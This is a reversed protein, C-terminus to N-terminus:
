RKEPKIELPNQIRITCIQPLNDDFICFLPRFAKSKSCFLPSRNGFSAEQGAEEIALLAAPTGVVRGLEFKAVLRRRTSTPFKVVQVGDPM